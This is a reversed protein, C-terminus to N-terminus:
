GLLLIEPYLVIVGSNDHQACRLMEQRMGASAEGGCFDYSRLIGCYLGTMGRLGTMSLAAFCREAVRSLSGERREPHCDLSAAFPLVEHGSGESREPHCGPNAEV